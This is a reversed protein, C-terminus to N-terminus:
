SSATVEVRTLHKHALGRSGTM